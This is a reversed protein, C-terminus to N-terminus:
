SANNWHWKTKNCLTEKMVIHVMLIWLFGQLVNLLDGDTTNTSSAIAATCYVLSVVCKWASMQILLFDNFSQVTSPSVM